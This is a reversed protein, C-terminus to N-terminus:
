EKEVVKVVEPFQNGIFHNIYASTASFLFSQIEFRMFNIEISRHSSVNELREKVFSLYGACYKQYFDKLVSLIVATFNSFFLSFAFVIILIIM